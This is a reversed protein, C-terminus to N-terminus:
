DNKNNKTDKRFAIFIGIGLAGLVVIIGMAIATQGIDATETSQESINKVKNRENHILEELKEEEYEQSHGSIGHLWLTSNSAEGHIRRVSIRMNKLLKFDRNSSFDLVVQNKENGTIVYFSELRIDSDELMFSIEYLSDESADAVLIEFSLFPTFEINEYYEYEYMIEASTGDSTALEAKLAKKESSAYDIKLNTCGIGKYWGDISASDYFGFYDFSGKCDEPLSPIASISLIQKGSSVAPAEGGVVESWSDKGFYKLLSDTIEKGQPTDIYKILRFIDKLGGEGYASLDIVFSSVASDKLLSYYSYVYAATLANGSLSLTPCWVFMIDKPVSKYKSSLDNLFDLFERHAGACLKASTEAAETDIGGEITENSIGLPVADTEVFVSCNIGSEFSDEFYSMINEMLGKLAYSRGEEGVFSPDPSFNEGTFPLVVEFSPDISRASNAVVMAYFACKQAYKEVDTENSYNNIGYSDWGKGVVIGCINGGRTSNYRATLFETAANILRLTDTDYVDPLYCDAGETEEVAFTGNSKLLFQLYVKAGSVSLSNVKADLRDIYNKAFFFQEDDVQHIYGVSIDTFLEDLYVPLIATGANLESYQATPSGMIGKFGSGAGTDDKIYAVEPYQAETGLTLEGEASRLFIAYRSFRDLTNKLDFTFGFRISADTEALIESNPDRAVDYESAGPPIAYIVLKSEKHKAFAEYHMTGEVTIKKDQANYGCSFRLAEEFIEAAEKDATTDQAFVHLSSSCLCFLILISTLASVIRKIM